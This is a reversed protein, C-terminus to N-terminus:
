PQTTGDPMTPKFLGDLTNLPADLQDAFATYGPVATIREFGIAQSCCDGNSLKYFRHAAGTINNDTFSGIGSGDLIVGSVLTWSQLDSSEYM